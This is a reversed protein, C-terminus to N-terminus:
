RILSNVDDTVANHTSIIKSIASFVKQALSLMPVYETLSATSSELAAQIVRTRPRFQYEGKDVTSYPSVSVPVLEGVTTANLKGKFDAYLSHIRLENLSNRLTLHGNINEGAGGLYFTATGGDFGPASLSFTLTQNGDLSIALRKLPDPPTPVTPDGEISVSTTFNEGVYQPLGVINSQATDDYNGPKQRLVVEGPQLALPPISSTLNIAANTPNYVLEFGGSQFSHADKQGLGFVLLGGADNTIGIDMVLDFRDTTTSEGIIMSNGGFYNISQLYSSGNTGNRVQTYIRQQTTPTILQDFTATAPDWAPQGLPGAQYGATLPDGDYGIDKYPALAGNDIDGTSQAINSTFSPTALEPTAGYDNPFKFFKSLAAGNAGGWRISTDTGSVTDVRNEIVLIDRFSDFSARVFRTSTSTVPGFNTDSWNNIADVIDQISFSAPDFVGVEAAFDFLGNSGFDLTFNSDPVGPPLAFPSIFGPDNVVSVIAPDDYVFTIGDAGKSFDNQVRTTLSGDLEFVTSGYKSMLLNDRNLVDVLLFSKNGYKELEKSLGDPDFIDSHDGAGLRIYDHGNSVVRLGSSNVLYGDQTWHFEGDRSLYYKGSSPDHLVFFGEGQLAFHSQSTSNVISGQGWEISAAQVTLTAPPFTLQNSVSNVGLGDSFSIRSTKYGTRSASQLNSNILGIWSNVALLSNVGVQSLAM